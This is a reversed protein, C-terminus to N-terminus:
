VNAICSFGRMVTQMEEQSEGEEQNKELQCIQTHEEQQLTMSIKYSVYYSDVMVTDYLINEGDQM